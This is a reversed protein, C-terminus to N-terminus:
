SVQARDFSCSYATIKAKLYSFHSELVRGGQFFLVLLCCLLTIIFNGIVESFYLQQAVRCCNPYSPM